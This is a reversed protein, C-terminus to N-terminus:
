EAISAETAISHFTYYTYYTYYTYFTQFCNYTYLGPPTLTQPKSLDIAEVDIEGLSEKLSRLYARYADAHAKHLRSHKSESGSV